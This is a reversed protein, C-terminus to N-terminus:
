LHLSNFCPAKAPRGPRIGATAYALQMRRMTDNISDQVKQLSEDSRGRNNLYDQVAREEPESLPVFVEIGPKGDEEHVIAWQTAEKIPLLGAGINEIRKYREDREAAKLKRQKEDHESRMRNRERARYADNDRAIRHARQNAEALAHELAEIQEKKGM